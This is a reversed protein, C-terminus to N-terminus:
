LLAFLVGGTSLTLLLLARFVERLFVTDPGHAETRQISRMEKTMFPSVCNWSEGNWLKAETQL